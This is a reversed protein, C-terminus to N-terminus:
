RARGTTARAVSPRSDCLHVGSLKAFHCSTWLQNIGRAEYSHSLSPRVSLTGNDFGAPRTHTNTFAGCTYSPSVTAEGGTFALLRMGADTNIHTGTLRM